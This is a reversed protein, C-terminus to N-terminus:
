KAYVQNSHDNVLAFFAACHRQKGYHSLDFQRKFDRSRIAAEFDDYSSVLEPHSSQSFLHAQHNTKTYKLDKVKKEMFDHMMGDAM